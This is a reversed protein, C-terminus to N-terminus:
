TFPFESVGPATGGGSGGSPGDPKGARKNGLSTGGPHESSSSSVCGRGTHKLAHVQSECHVAQAMAVVEAPGSSVMAVHIQHPKSEGIETLTLRVLVQVVGYQILVRKIEDAWVLQRVEHNSSAAAGDSLSLGPGPRSEDCKIWVKKRGEQRLGM